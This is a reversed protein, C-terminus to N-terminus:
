KKKCKKYVKDFEAISDRKVDCIWRYSRDMEVATQEITKNQFFYKIIVTQYRYDEIMRVMKEAECRLEAFEGLKEVLLLKVNSMKEITEPLTDKRSSQVNVEKPRYSISTLRAMLTQYEDDYSKTIASLERIKLLYDLSEM